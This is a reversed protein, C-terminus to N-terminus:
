DVDFAGYAPIFEIGKAQVALGHELSEIISESTSYDMFGNGAIRGLHDLTFM